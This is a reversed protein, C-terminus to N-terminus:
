DTELLHVHLEFRGHRDRRWFRCAIWKRPPSNHTKFVVRESGKKAERSHTMRENM